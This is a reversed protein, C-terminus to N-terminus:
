LPSSPHPPPSSAKRPGTLVGPLQVRHSLQPKRQERPGWWIPPYFGHHAFPSCTCEWLGPRLAPEVRRPVPCPAAFVYLSGSWLVNQPAGATLQLCRFGGTYEEFSICHQLPPLCRPCCPAHAAQPRRAPELVERGWRMAVGGDSKWPLFVEAM